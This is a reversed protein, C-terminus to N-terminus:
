NVEAVTTMPYPNRSAFKSKAAEVWKEFEEKSVVEIAIPMFGHNAGCLESCQGYYVGKEAIRTWTSNVRGPVADVKFGLSPVTFSHIVDGATILFKVNTNQPIVIRNDVELLRKQGPRLKDDSVIYSDYSFNNHDPYSYNWYWQYGIVKVTLEPTPMFEMKHLIRFSPFAIFSIILIPIITWVVEIALNHTFTAPVPNRKASFRFCTYGLLCFVFIVICVCVILLFEHFPVLEDMIPSASPQLSMQWPKPESGFAYFCCLLPSVLLSLFWRM